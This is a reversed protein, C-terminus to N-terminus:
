QDIRTFYPVQGRDRLRDLTLSTTPPGPNGPLVNSVMTGASHPLLSTGAALNLTLVVQGPVPVSTGTLDPVGKQAVTNVEAWQGNGNNLSNEGYGIHIKTGSNPTGNAPVLAVAQGDYFVSATSTTADWRAEIVITPNGRAGAAADEVLKSQWARKVPTADANTPGVFPLPQAVGYPDIQYFLQSRDVVAAFQARLDGPIREFLEKGLVPQNTVTHPGANTVEFFGVTLVVLFSDSTPTVSNYMKRLPEAQVYPHPYVGASVQTNNFLVPLPTIGAMGTNSQVRFVTDALNGAGGLGYFPRDAGGEATTARPVPVNNVRTPTRAATSNPITAADTTLYQWATYPTAGLPTQLTPNAFFNNGQQPDLAATLLREDSLTNLNLRGAERGGVPVGTTHSGTVILDLARHWQNAPNRFFPVLPDTANTALADWSTHRQYEYGFVNMPNAADRRESYFKQTLLGPSHTSVHLLELQNILQRDLHVLWELGQTNGNRANDLNDNAKFLSNPADNMGGANGTEVRVGDPAVGSTIPGAVYPNIRGHSGATLHAPMRAGTNDFRARDRTPLNELYDVTVYPNYNPTVPNPQPPLYPNALRRLIVVSTRNSENTIDTSTPMMAADFSLANVPMATTPVGAPADALSMTNDVPTATNPFRDLPGIVYFGRNQGNDAPLTGASGNAPLVYNLEDASTVLQPRSPATQDYTYQDIRARLDTGAPIAGTTIATATDVAANAPNAVLFTSYPTAGGMGTPDVTAVEIRYPNYTPGNYAAAVTPNLPNQLPTQNVMANNEYRLYVASPNPVGSATTPPTNADAPLPNHLEIWYRRKPARTAPASTDQRDNDIVSIAENLVLKPLETGYVVRNPLDTAAFNLPDASPDAFPQGTVPDDLSTIGDAYFATYVTNVPNWVFATSIDDPDVHDVINAAIQALKRYLPFQNQVAMPATALDVTLFYGTTPDYVLGTNPDGTVLGALAALRVFVDRALNQRAARARGYHRPEQNLPAPDTPLANASWVNLPSLAMPEYRGAAANWWIAVKRFDPLPRNVDVPGLRAFTTPSTALTVEAWQQSASYATTMARAQAAATTSDTLGTPAVGPATPTYVTGIKGLESTKYRQKPDSYRATLKIQDDLGLPRNLSPGGRQWQFPNYLMPHNRLGAGAFLNQTTSFRTTPFTPFPMVNATPTGPQPPILPDPTTANPASTVGDPDFLSYPPPIVGVLQGAGVGGAPALALHNIRGESSSYHPDPLPSAGQRPATALQFRRELIALLQQNGNTNTPDLIGTPNIEQPGLGAHSTHRPHTPVQGPGTGPTASRINGAVSLNVRGSLDLILPAVLAKYRKGRWTLVPGGADMWLSDNKQSGTLFKLNSVDGTYSGDANAPPYPFGNHDAPRPRLTLLRGQPNTWAPNTQDLGGFLDTRHFSPTVIEGTAPNMYALFYNAGRDPYTYPVAKNFYNGGATGSPPTGLTTLNRFPIPM